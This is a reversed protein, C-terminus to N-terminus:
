SLPTVGELGVWSELERVRLMDVDRMCLCGGGRWDVMTAGRGWLKGGYWPTPLQTIM